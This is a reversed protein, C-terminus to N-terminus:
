DMNGGSMALQALEQQEFPALQALQRTRIEMEALTPATLVYSALCMDLLKRGTANAKLARAYGHITMSYPRAEGVVKGDNLCKATNTVIYAQEMKTLHPLAKELELNAAAQYDENIDRLNYLAEGIGGIVLLASGVVLVCGFSIYLYDRISKKNMKQEGIAPTIRLSVIDVHQNAALEGILNVLTNVQM